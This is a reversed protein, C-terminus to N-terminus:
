VTFRLKPPVFIAASFIQSVITMPFPQLVLGTEFIKPITVPICLFEKTEENQIKKNTNKDKPDNNSDNSKKLQKALHCKGECCSLPKDRNICLNKVIFDKNIAYEIFPFVPRLIYFVLIVLQIYAFIRYKM